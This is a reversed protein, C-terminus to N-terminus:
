TLYAKGSFPASFSVFLQNKSLYQVNGIVTTNASDVITVAPFRNTNHTITWGTSPIGQNFIFDATSGTPLPVSITTRDNKELSLINNEVSGTTVFKDDTNFFDLINDSTLNQFDEGKIKVKYILALDDDAYLDSATYSGNTALNATITNGSSDTPTEFTPFGSGTLTSLVSAGSGGFENEEISAGTPITVSGTTTVSIDITEFYTVKYENNELKHLRTQLDIITAGSNSPLNDALLLPEGKLLDIFFNAM